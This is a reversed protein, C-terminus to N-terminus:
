LKTAVPRRRPRSIADDARYDAGHDNNGDRREQDFAECLTPYGAMASRRLRTACLGQRRHLLELLFLIHATLGYQRGDVDHAAFPQAKVM